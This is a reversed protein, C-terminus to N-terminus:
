KADGLEPQETAILVLCVDLKEGVLDDPVKFTKGMQSQLYAHLFTGDKTVKVNVAGSAFRANQLHGVM